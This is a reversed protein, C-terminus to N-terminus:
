GIRKLSLINDAELQTMTGAKVRGEVYPKLEKLLQEKSDYPGFVIPNTEDGIITVMYGSQIPLNEDYNLKQTVVIENEGNVTKSVKVGNKIDELIQNHNVIAEDVDKQTLYNLNGEQDYYGADKTGVLKKLNNIEKEMNEKYDDYTWWVIDQTSDNKQNAETFLFLRVNDVDIKTGISKNDMSTVTIPAFKVLDAKTKSNITASTAFVTSTSAVLTAAVVFGMISSNKIKMISKIREEIANKSFNNCLPTIISKKEEMNILMLAYFSKTNKVTGLTRLVKEDCALEVDRNALVYLFWVMPNFWHLCLSLTLILKFLTDFRKIHVFEHALICELQKHDDWETTKPLLIVPKIVGYTLPANIKYTQRIQIQRVTKHSTLWDKIFDNNVPLSCSFEKLCKFYAISFFLICIIVGAVWVYFFTSIQGATQPVYVLSSQQPIGILNPMSLYEEQLNAGANNFHNILTYISLPSYVQFPVLLRLVVLGWLAVFARKPLQHIAFARIVVIALILVAASGSMELFNM